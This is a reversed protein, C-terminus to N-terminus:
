QGARKEPVSQVSVKDDAGATGRPRLVEQEKGLVWTGTGRSFHVKVGTTKYIVYDTGPQHLCLIFLSLKSIIVVTKSIYTTMNRVWM